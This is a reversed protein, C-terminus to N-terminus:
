WSETKIINEKKSANYTNLRKTVFNNNNNNFEIQKKNLCGIQNGSGKNTGHHSVKLFCEQKLFINQVEWRIKLQRASFIM